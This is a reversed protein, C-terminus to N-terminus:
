NEFYKLSLKLRVIGHFKAVAMRKEGKSQHLFRNHSVRRRRRLWKEEDTSHRRRGVVLGRLLVVM